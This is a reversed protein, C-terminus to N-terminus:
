SGHPRGVTNGVHTPTFRIAAIRTTPCPRTGWMRPPSGCLGPAPLRYGWHEGCAHPHVSRAIVTSNSLCTNGVHTPTFRYHLSVSRIFRHTGWMRPPSRNNCDCLCRSCTHEGCAHPHVTLRVPALSVPATNGVHTPTFRCHPIQETISGLTGWMRPPSGNAAEGIRSVLLHEGCAHPHVAQVVMQDVSESTNGVHTPTFRRTPDQRQTSPRTGWM